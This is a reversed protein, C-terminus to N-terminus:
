LKKGVLSLGLLNADGTNTDLADSGYRTLRVLVAKKGTAPQPLVFSAPAFGNAVSSAPATVFIEGDEATCDDDFDIYVYKLGWRVNGGAVDSAFGIRISLEKSFDINSLFRINTACAKTQVNAFSLVATIGYDILDASGVGGVPNIGSSPFQILLDKDDCCNDHLHIAEGM